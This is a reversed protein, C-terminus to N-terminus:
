SLIGSNNCNFTQFIWSQFIFRLNACYSFQNYILTPPAHELQIQFFNKSCTASSTSSRRRPILFHHKESVRCIWNNIYTYNYIYCLLICKYLQLYRNRILLSIPDFTLYLIIKKTIVLANVHCCRGIFSMEKKWLNHIM